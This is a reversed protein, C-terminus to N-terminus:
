NLQDAFEEIAKAVERPRSLTPVHGTDSLVVLEADPLDEVLEHANDIPNIRDADGHIVLSPIGISKLMQRFEVDYFSEVLTAAREPGARAIIDRLWRRLYGEDDEPLCVEVFGEVTREFSRRLGDVFRITREDPNHDVKGAVLVLGDIRDPWRHTAAVAVACLSSDGALICRQVEFADLVDAVLEVQADFTVRDSAVYTEGTGLHDYTITRYRRHLLEFPQQWIEVNGFAGALGLITTQGGGFELTNVADGKIRRFM